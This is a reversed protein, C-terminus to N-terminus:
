SRVSTCVNFLCAYVNQQRQNSATVWLLLSCHLFFLNVNISSCLIQNQNKSNTERALNENIKPMLCSFSFKWTPMLLLHKMIKCTAIQILLSIKAMVSVTKWSNNGKLHWEKYETVEMSNQVSSKILDM